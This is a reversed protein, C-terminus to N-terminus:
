GPVEGCGTNKKGPTSEKVKRQEKKGDEKGGGGGIAMADSPRKEVLFSFGTIKRQVKGRGGL